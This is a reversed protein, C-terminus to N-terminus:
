WFLWVQLCYLNMKEEPCCTIEHVHIHDSVTLERLVLVTTKILTEAMFVCVAATVSYDNVIWWIELWVHSESLNDVIRSLRPAYILSCEYNYMIKTTKSIWVIVNAKFSM